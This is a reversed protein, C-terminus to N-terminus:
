RTITNQLENIQKELSKEVKKVDDNDDLETLGEELTSYEIIIKAEKEYIIHSPQSSSVEISPDDTAEEDIEDLNGRKMPVQINELKCQILLSHKNAKEQEVQTEMQNIQKNAAQMEKGILTVDKRAANVDEELKDVETKTSMKKHKLKDLEKMETDIDGM